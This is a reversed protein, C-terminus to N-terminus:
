LCTSLLKLYIKKQKSFYVASTYVLFLLSFPFVILDYLYYNIPGLLVIGLNIILALLYWKVDKDKIKKGIKLSPTLWSYGLIGFMYIIRVFILKEEFKHYFWLLPEYLINEEQPLWLKLALMWNIIIVALFVVTLLMLMGNLDKKEKSISM